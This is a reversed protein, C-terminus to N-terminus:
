SVETNIAENFIVTFVTGKGKISKVTIEANNMECYKKVLSLGLGSGEYKRTYGQEEQTFPTFLSPLYDDAIGIGTDAVSICVRNLEDRFTSIEISGANTYKIANDILNVLIQELSYQDATIVFDDTQRNLLLKLNKRGAKYVFEMYLRELINKYLSIQRYVCEYSGAQIESMNLILDITRIIRDGSKDIASFYQEVDPYESEKLIDKVLQMYNLMTNIPTRIEHSMQALFESKLRSSREANEKAKIIDLEIKKKDTIDLMSIISKDSSAILSVIILVNHVSGDASVIRIEYKSPVGAANSRRMAHYETVKKVEDPHLITLGDVNRNLDDLGYGTLRCWESNVIYIKFDTGIIMSATGTNEFISRYLNESERLAKETELRQTLDVIAVASQGTGPIMAVSILVTKPEKAKAYFRFEYSTPVTEPSTRRHKHYETMRKLDEPEKVFETWYTNNQLEAKSYGSLKEFEKNVLSIKMDDEVIAMPNRSNEFITRYKNESNRLAEEIRKKETIDHVSEIAGYQRGMSDLLPSATGAVFAGRGNYLSPVYIEGYLTNGHVIVSSYKKEIEPINMGVLDILIPMREGYFPIAYEYNGKGIMSKKSMGTMEEMARNWAIIKKEEDIVFTADPLFEIVDTLWQHAIELEREARKRETIDSIIGVLLKRGKEDTFLKKKTLIIRKQGSYNTLEEENINEIGTKFVIEDKEWFLDAQAAPFYDYDSKGLLESRSKGLYECLADNVYIWRHQQNKVFVPDAVSNLIQELYDMEFISGRGYKSEEATNIRLLLRNNELCCYRYSFLTKTRANYFPREDPSITGCANPSEKYSAVLLEYLEPIASKLSIGMLNERTIRTLECFSTNAAIIFFGSSGTGEEATMQLITVPHDIIDIVGSLESDPGDM